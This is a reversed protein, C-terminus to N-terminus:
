HQHFHSSNSPLDLYVSFTDASKGPLMKAKVIQTPFMALTLGFVVLTGLIILFTGYTRSLAWKLLAEYTKM